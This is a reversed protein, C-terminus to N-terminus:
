EPRRLVGLAYIDSRGGFDALLLRGSDDDILVNDPKIDRHVVGKRHAYDLADALEALMRAAVGPSIRGDRKLRAGLSEGRVFGMIFFSLGETEGFTYLPVINSHTLQAATRAERRFRERGDPSADATEPPLVKIAVDRDLAKERALYVTGMAGRGIVHGIEYQVGLARILTERIPDLPEHPEASKAAPTGCRLCFAADNPLATSCNGCQAM